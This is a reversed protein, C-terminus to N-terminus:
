ALGPQTHSVAIATAPLFYDCCTRRVSMAMPMSTTEESDHLAWVPKPRKEMNITVILVPKQAHRDLVRSQTALFHAHDFSGFCSRPLLSFETLGFAHTWRSVSGGDHRPIINLSVAIWGARAEATRQATPRRAFLVFPEAGAAVFPVCEVRAAHTGGAKM